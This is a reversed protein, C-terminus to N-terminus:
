VNKWHWKLATEEGMANVEDEGLADVVDDLADEVCSPCMLKGNYDTGPDWDDDIHKDCSCCIYISM